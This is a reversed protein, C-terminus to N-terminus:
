ISLIVDIDIGEDPSRTKFKKDFEEMIKYHCETWKREM